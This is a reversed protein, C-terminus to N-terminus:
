SEGQVEAVRRRSRGEFGGVKLGKWKMLEHVSFVWSGGRRRM